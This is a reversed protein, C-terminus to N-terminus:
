FGALSTRKMANAQRSDALVCHDYRQLDYMEIVAKVDAIYKHRRESYYLLGEALAVSDMTRQRIKRLRRYAQVRNLTLHYARVSDLISDYSAVKHTKGKERRAPIIGNKGWTWIGFLNNGESVFRSDGWSSEIAAQAMVLSVPVVNVRLLLEKLMTTRYKKALSRLFIVETRTFGEPWSSKNKLDSIDLRRGDIKEHVALLFGREQYIEEQVIMTIPLLTHLFAKKKTEADLLNLDSPYSAVLVPPIETGPAEQWLGRSKLLEILEGSSDVHVARYLDFQLANQPPPFGPPKLLIIISFLWFITAGVVLHVMDRDIQRKGFTIPSNMTGDTRHTPLHM